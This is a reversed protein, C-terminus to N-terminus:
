IEDRSMLWREVPSLLGLSTKTEALMDGDIRRRRWNWCPSFDKAWSLFVSKCGLFRDPIATWNYGFHCLLCGHALFCKVLPFSLYKLNLIHGEHSVNVISVSIGSAAKLIEQIHCCWHSLSKTSFNKINPGEPAAGATVNLGNFLPSVLPPRPLRWPLVSVGSCYTHCHRSM